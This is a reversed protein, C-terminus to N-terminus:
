RLLFYSKVMIRKMHSYYELWELDNSTFNYESQSHVLLLHTASTHSSLDNCAGYGM